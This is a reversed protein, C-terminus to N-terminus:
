VCEKMNEFHKCNYKGRLTKTTRKPSELIKNHRASESTSTVNIFM